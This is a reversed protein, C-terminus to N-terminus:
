EWDEDDDLGELVIFTENAQSAKKADDIKEDVYDDIYTLVKQYSRGYFLWDVFLFLIALNVIPVIITLLM